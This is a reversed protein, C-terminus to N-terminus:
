TNTRKWKDDTLEWIGFCCPRLLEREGSQQSTDMINWIHPGGHKRPDAFEERQQIYEPVLGWEELTKFERFEKPPYCGSALKFPTLPDQGSILRAITTEYQVFGDQKEVSYIGWIGLCCPQLVGGIGGQGKWHPGSNECHEGPYRFTFLGM